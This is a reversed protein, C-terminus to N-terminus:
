RRQEGGILRSSKWERVKEVEAAIVSGDVGLRDDGGGISTRSVSDAPRPTNAVRFIPAPSSM